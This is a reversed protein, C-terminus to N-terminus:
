GNSGGIQERIREIQAEFRREGGVELGQSYLVLERVRNVVADSNIQIAREVLRRMQEASQVKITRAGEGRIYIAAEDLVQGCSDTCIHPVTQFPLTRVVVYRSGDVTPKYMEFRVEPDSYRKVKDAISSPDFSTLEMDNLGDYSRVVGGDDTAGIVIYGPVDLNGLAMMDRVLEAKNARSWARWNGPEKYDLDPREHGWKVISALQEDSLKHAEMM